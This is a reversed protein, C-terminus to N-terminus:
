SNDRATIQRMKLCNLGRRKDSDQECTMFVVILTFVAMLYFKHRM